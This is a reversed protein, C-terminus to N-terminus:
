VETVWIGYEQAMLKAKVMFMQYAAGKRYGKVDEVVFEGNKNLYQFDAVYVTPRYKKKGNTQAPILEYPVQRKLCTIYGLNQLTCLELWRDYEKQSDFLGDPTEIKRNRYKSQKWSTSM